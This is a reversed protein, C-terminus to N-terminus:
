CKECRSLNMKPPELEAITTGEQEAVAKSFAAVDQQAKASQEGAARATDHAMSVRRGAAEIATAAARCLATGPMRELLKNFDRCIKEGMAWSGADDDLWEQWARLAEALERDALRLNSQRVANEERVISEEFEHWYENRVSEDGIAQEDWQSKWEQWQQQLLTRLADDALPL